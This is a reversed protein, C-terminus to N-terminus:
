YVVSVLSLIIYKELSPKWDTVYHVLDDRTRQNSSEFSLDFLMLSLLSDIVSQQSDSFQLNSMCNIYVKRGLM